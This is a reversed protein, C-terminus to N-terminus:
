LSVDQTFLIGLGTGAYVEVTTPRNMEKQATQSWAKGVEGLAILANDLTSRSLTSVTTNTMGGTGGVSVTTNSSQIASSMGAMFSSAFLAGYRQLYHHNAESALATRATNPDIAYASISVTKDAGPISITNFSIVMKSANAPLTFSGILKSGKLRGSVITALIPGPEDTNVSTDMVAFLIDGTKIINEGGAGNATSPSPGTKQYNRSASVHDMDQNDSDSNDKKSGAVLVQDPVKKWRQLSEKAASLMAGTRQKIKAQYRQDAMQIQQRTMLNQLQKTDTRMEPIASPPNIVVPSMLISPPSTSPTAPPTISQTAEPKIPSVMPVDDPFGAAKLDAVSFGANKLEAASFGAAKLEAATYGAARMAAVSCGLTQRITKASVGAARAAKLSDVSCDATRGAAIVASPILSAETLDDPTFGAALLDAPTMGLDALEQASFGAARLAAASCGNIDYIQKASVGQARLAKLKVPDCSAARIADLSVPVVHAAKLDEPSFGTGNLDNATFGASLLDALRCHNVERIRAASIGLSHLKRLKILDCGAAKIADLTCGSTQEAFAPSVGALEARKLAGDSCGSHQLQLLTMAPPLVSNAANLDQDSVGARKLDDASYGADLLDRPSFGASLLDQPNFGAAKLEAATFGAAKLEEATYGAARLQAASCGSIRVIAAATVGRARLQRLADPNCRAKLIDEASVGDPVGGAKAIDADSFGAGKLEGDSYGGASMENATFGAGRTECASFGCKKLKEATYGQSKLDAAGFGASKLELCACVPILEKLTYGNEKLQQCSCMPRLNSLGAGENIIRKLTVPNCDDKKLAETWLSQQPGAEDALALTTFGVGGSGDKPGILEVGEGFAQTRIITPIASAGTKNAIQAQIQNQQEQLAAYQATQSQSGPISSINTQASKINANENLGLSSSSTLKFFGIVVITILAIATFLIITRSKTNSFLAKINEKKSAM